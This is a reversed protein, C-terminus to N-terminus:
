YRRTRLLTAALDFLMQPSRPDLHVAEQQKRIAEDFRGQRRLVWGMINIAEAPVGPRAIELEKLARDYDRHRFYYYLGLALHGEPLDPELQLSQEAEERAGEAVRDATGAVCCFTAMKVQALRARALAFSPDAQIAKEYLREAIAWNNPENGPRN